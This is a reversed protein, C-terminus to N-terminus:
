QLWLINALIKLKIECRTNQRDKIFVTDVIFFILLLTIHLKSHDIKRKVNKTKKFFM